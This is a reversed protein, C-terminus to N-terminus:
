RGPRRVWRETTPRRRASNGAAAEATPVTAAMSAWGTVLGPEPEPEPRPSAPWSSRARLGGLLPGRLLLRDGLLPGGLLLLRRWSAAPSSSRGCPSSSAPWWSAHRSSSSRSARVALFVVRRGALRLAVFFRAVLFRAVFFRGAFFRGLLPWSRSADCRWSSSRRGALRLAAFFVAALRRLPPRRLAALGTVTLDEIPGVPLGTPGAATRAREAGPTVLTQLLPTIEDRGFASDLRGRISAPATSLSSGRSTSSAGPRPGDASTWAGTLSQYIEVHM